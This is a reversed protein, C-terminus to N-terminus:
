FEFEINLDEILKNLVNSFGKYLGLLEMNIFNNSM